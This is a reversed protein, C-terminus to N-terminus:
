ENLVGWAFCEAPLPSCPDFSLFVNGLAWQSSARATEDFSGLGPLGVDIGVGWNEHPFVTCLIGLIGSTM